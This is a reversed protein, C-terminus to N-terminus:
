VVTGRDTSWGTWGKLDELPGPEKNNQVRGVATEEAQSERGGRQSAGRIENRNM